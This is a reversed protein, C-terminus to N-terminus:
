TKRWKRAWSILYLYPMYVRPLILLSYKTPVYNPNLKKPVQSLCYYYRDSLSHALCEVLCKSCIWFDSAHPDWCSCYGFLFPTFMLFFSIPSFHTCYCSNKLTAVLSPIHLSFHVTFLLNPGFWTSEQIIHYPIVIPASFGDFTRSLSWLFIRLISWM